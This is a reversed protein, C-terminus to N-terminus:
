FAEAILFASAPTDSSPKLVVTNGCAIAPFIIRSALIFPMNWPSIVGVVGKAERYSFVDKGPCNSPYITGNPMSTYRIAEEIAIICEGAEFQALSLVKGGENVSCTAIEDQMETFISALKILFSKKQEPSTSEWDSQAKKAAEYADDVDDKSSAHYSYLLEGTYPNYNFLEEGKGERWEGNIYQKTYKKM